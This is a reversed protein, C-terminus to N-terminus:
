DQPTGQAASLTTGKSSPTEWLCSAFWILSTRTVLQPGQVRQDISILLLFLPWCSNLCPKIPAAAHSLPFLYCTSKSSGQPPLSAPEKFPTLTPTAHTTQRGGHHYHTHPHHAPGQKQQLCRLLPLQNQGKLIRNNVTQGM